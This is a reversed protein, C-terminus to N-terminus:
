WEFCTKKEIDMTRRTLGNEKLSLSKCCSGRKSEQGLLFENLSFIVLKKRVNDKKEKKLYYFLCYFM